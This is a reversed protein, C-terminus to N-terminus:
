ERRLFELELCLLRDGYRRYVRPIKKYLFKLLTKLSSLSLEESKEPEMLSIRLLNDNLEYVNNLFFEMFNNLLKDTREKASETPPIGYNLKPSIAMNEIATSMCTYEDKLRLSEFLSKAYIYDNLGKRFELEPTYNLLHFIYSQSEFDIDKVKAKVKVVKPMGIGIGSKDM